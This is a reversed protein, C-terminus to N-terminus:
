RHAEQTQRGEIGHAKMVSSCVMHHIETLTMKQKNQYMRSTKSGGRVSSVRNGIPLIPWVPYSFFDLNKFRYRPGQGSHVGQTRAVIKGCVQLHCRPTTEPSHAPPVIEERRNERDQFFHVKLIAQWKVAM